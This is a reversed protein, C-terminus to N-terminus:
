LNRADQLIQRSKVRLSKPMGKCMQRHYLDLDYDKFTGGERTVNSDKLLSKILLSKFCSCRSSGTDSKIYGTDKCYMCTHVNDLYDAPYGCRSILARKRGITENLKQKIEDKRYDGNIASLGLRIGLKRIEDDLVAIQPVKSFIEEKRKDAPCQMLDEKRSNTM